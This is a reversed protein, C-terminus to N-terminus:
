VRPLDAGLDPLLKLWDKKRTRLASFRVRFEEELVIIFFEPPIDVRRARGYILSSQFIPSNKRDKM